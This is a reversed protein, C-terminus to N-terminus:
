IVSSSSQHNIIIIISTIANPPHGSGLRQGRDNTDLGGGSSAEWM